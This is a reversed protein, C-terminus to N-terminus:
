RHQLVHLIQGLQAQIQNLDTEIQSTLNYLGTNLNYTQAASMPKGVLDLNEQFCKKATKYSIM